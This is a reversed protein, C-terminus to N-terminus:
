HFKPQARKELSGLVGEMTDAAAGVTKTADSDGEATGPESKKFGELEKELEAIRAQGAKVDRVLRNFSAAKNRMAAARGLIAERQEKSLSPDRANERAARDFEALGRELMKDGEEDIPKGDKDQGKPLVFPKWQDPVSEPKTASQWHSEIEKSVKSSTEHYQKERDAGVKKYEEIAGNMAHGAKEVELMHPTVLSARSGFMQELQTAAAEPDHLYNQMISDFDDATAARSNGEADTVKLRSLMQRGRNWADNFPQQYKSKFEPSKEYSVYRFEDELAQKEKLASELRESLSKIEPNDEPKISKVKELEAKFTDREQETKQLKERLFDAPKKQKQEVAKPDTVQKAPDDTKPEEAAKEDPKPPPTEKAKEPPQEQKAAEKAKQSPHPPITGPEHSPPKAFKDLTSFSSELNKGTGFSSGSRSGGLAAADAAADAVSAPAVPAEAPM